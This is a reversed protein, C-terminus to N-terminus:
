IIQFPSLKTINFISFRYTIIISEHHQMIPNTTGMSKTAHSQARHSDDTFRHINPKNKKWQVDEQRFINNFRNPNHLESVEKKTIPTIFKSPDLKYKSAPTDPGLLLDAATPGLLGFPDVIFPNLQYNLNLCETIIESGHTNNAQTRNPGRLKEVEFSSLHRFVAPTMHHSCM